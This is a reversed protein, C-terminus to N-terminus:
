NRLSNLKEPQLRNIKNCKAPCKATPYDDMYNSQKSNCNQKGKKSGETVAMRYDNCDSNCKPSAISGNYALLEANNYVSTVRTSRNKHFCNKRVSQNFIQYANWEDDILNDANEIQFTRAENESGLCYKFKFEEERVASSRYDTFLRGDSMLAPFTHFYNDM